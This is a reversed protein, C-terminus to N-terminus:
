IAKKLDPLDTVPLQKAVRQDEGLLLTLLHGVWQSEPGGWAAVNHEIHEVFVKLITRCERRIYTM